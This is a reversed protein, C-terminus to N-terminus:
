DSHILLSDIANSIEDSNFGRGSLYSFAKRKDGFDKLDYKKKGLANICSIYFDIDGNNTLIDSRQDIETIDVGKSRLHFKIWRLGKGRKCHKVLEIDLDTKEAKVQRDTKLTHKNPHQEIAAKVQAYTFGRKKLIRTLKEKTVTFEFYYSNIYTNIISQEDINKNTIIENLAKDINRDSILKKNLVSRIKISGYDSFFSREIYELCFEYDSKIIFLELLRTITNDIWESNNTKRELKQRLEPVTLFYGKNELHWMASNWVSSENKAQRIPYRQQTM